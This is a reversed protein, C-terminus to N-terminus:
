SWAGEDDAKASRLAAAADDCEVRANTVGEIATSCFLFIPRLNPTALPASVM